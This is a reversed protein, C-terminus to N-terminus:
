DKNSLFGFLFLPRKIGKTEYSDSLIIKRESKFGKFQRGPSGPRNTQATDNQRGRPGIIGTFHKEEEALIEDYLFRKQSYKKGEERSLKDLEILADLNIM